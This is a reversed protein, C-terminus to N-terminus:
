TQPSIEDADLGWDQDGRHREVPVVMVPGQAERLLTRAVSGLHEGAWGHAHRGVVVLSARRSHDVLAETPWQHAVELEVHVDPHLARLGLVATALERLQRERWEAAVRASIIDDYAPDLRWSHLVRLPAGSAAAWEFAAVLAQPPTGGEHVGVVVEGISAGAAPREWDEPVSIVPCACHAAAGNATSGVFLRDMLHARRHQVVVFRAERALDVLVRSPPGAVVLTRFAM